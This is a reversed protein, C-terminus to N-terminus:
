VGILSSAGCGSVGLAAAKLKIFRGEPRRKVRWHASEGSDMHPPGCLQAREHVRPPDVGCQECTEM